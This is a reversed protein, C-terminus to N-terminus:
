EFFDATFKYMCVIVFVCHMYLLIVYIDFWTETNYVTCFSTYVYLILLQITGYQMYNYYYM